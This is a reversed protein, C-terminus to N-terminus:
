MRGRKGNKAIGTDFSGSTNPLDNRWPMLRTDVFINQLHADSDFPGCRLLTARLHNLIGPPIGIM